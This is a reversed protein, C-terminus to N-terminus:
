SVFDLGDKGEEDSDTWDEPVDPDFEFSSAAKALEEETMKPYKNALGEMTKAMMLGKAKELFREKAHVDLPMRSLQEQGEHDEGRTVAYRGKAGAERLALFCAYNGRDAAVLVATHNSTSLYNVDAGAQLLANIASLNDYYAAYALATTGKHDEEDLNLGLATARPLYEDVLMDMYKIGRDAPLQVVERLTAGVAPALHERPECVSELLRRLLAPTCSPHGAAIAPVYMVREGGGLVAAPGVCGAESLVALPPGIDAENDALEALVMAPSFGAGDLDNRRRAAGPSALLAALTAGGDGAMAAEHLLTAGAEGAALEGEGDAAGAVVLAAVVGAGGLRVALALPTGLEAEGGASGLGLGLRRHEECLLAVAAGAGSIAAYHLPLLGAAGGAAALPAGARALAGLAREDGALAALHAPMYAEAGGSRASLAAVGGAAAVAALLPGDGDAAAVHAATCEGEEGGGLREFGEGAAALTRAWHASRAGWREAAARAVMRRQLGCAFREFGGGGGGEGAACEAGRARMAASAAEVGEHWPPPPALAAAPPVGAVDAGAAASSVACWALALAVLRARPRMARRRSTVVVM